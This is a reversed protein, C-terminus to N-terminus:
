SISGLLSKGSPLYDVINKGIIDQPQFSTIRDTGGRWVMLHHYRDQSVFTPLCAIAIKGYNHRKARQHEAERESKM